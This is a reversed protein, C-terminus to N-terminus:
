VALKYLVEKADGALLNAGLHIGLHHGVAQVRREAQGVVLGVGLLALGLSNLAPNRNTGADKRTRRRGPRRGGRPRHDPSAPRRRDSAPWPACGGTGTRTPPLRRM